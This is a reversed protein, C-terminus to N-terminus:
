PTKAFLSDLDRQHTSSFNGKRKYLWILPQRHLDGALTGAQIFYEGPVFSHQQVAQDSEESTDEGEVTDQTQTEWM